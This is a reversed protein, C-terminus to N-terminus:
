RNTQKSNDASESDENEAPTYLRAFGKSSKQGTSSSVVNAVMTILFDLNQMDDEVTIRLPQDNTPYNGCSEGLGCIFFDNDIDSGAIIVYEGAPIDNFTFDYQGNDVDVSVQSVTDYSDADLLLVFIFGADGTESLTNQVQMTVSISIEAGSDLDFVLTDSYIADSLTSRDITLTYTGSGDPNAAGADVTLWSASNTVGFSTVSPPSVGAQTLVVTKATAFSGFNILTPDAFLVGTAVGGGLLQAQQVAKLADILGNGYLDDRGGAGLETTIQIAAAASLSFDFEAGTLGPHVAKMLAAVGAVHPAAMSTGQYFQYSSVRTGSSDDILTSLVGDGYGDGNSDVSQDGGPAAVDIFAGTNSYPAITNLLGVASVSVVNDYSAPYSPFTSSENGAAAIVIIDTDARIEDFLNQSSQSFGGGGLSLNIIDAPQAPNTNSDNDLGAAFRIGQEVDYFTGGGLGLVRIPMIKSNWAVGAVGTAGTNSNSEAAVTGAVHTGHWSSPSAGGGDGPDDANDDIGDNDLSTNTDIIFDYGDVLQDDLDEHSLVVGTDVVAVIVTSSGTTIDWALPLNIQPYHVQLPYLPDNPTAMPYVRYNPEAYEVDSRARLQKIAKLTEWQDHYRSQLKAALTGAKSNASNLAPLAFHILGARSRDSHSLKLAQAGGNAAAALGTNAKMKVIAQGTVFDMPNGYARAGAVFSTAGINLVYKSLGSFAYVRIYYDGDAPASVSESELESESTITTPNVDVAEILQLDIDNRTPNDHDFDAVRLSVFQGAVLSVRYYDDNDTDTEFNSVGSTPAGAPDLSVFGNLVVPNPLPQAETKANNTIFDAGLSAKNQRSPDNVDIDVVTGGAASLTGSLAFAPVAPAVTITVQDTDTRSNSDTVTLVTTYTGASNFTHSVQPGQASSDDGFNWSYSSISPSGNSAGVIQSTSGDFNVTLPEPGETDGNVTISAVVTTTVPTSGGGGGGGCASLSLALASVALVRMISM